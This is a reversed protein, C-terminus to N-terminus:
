ASVNPLHVFMVAGDSSGVAMYSKTHAGHYVEM